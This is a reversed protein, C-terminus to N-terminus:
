LGNAAASASGAHPIGCHLDLNACSYEEDRRDREREARTRSGFQMANASAFTGSAEACNASGTSSPRIMSVSVPACARPLGGDHNCSPTSSAAQAPKPSKLMAQPVSIAKPKLRREVIDNTLLQDIEGTGCGLMGLECSLQRLKNRLYPPHKRALIYPRVDGPKLM